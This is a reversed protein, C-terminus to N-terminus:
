QPCLPCPVMRQEATGARHLCVELGAPFGRHGCEARCDETLLVRDYRQNRQRHYKNSARHM